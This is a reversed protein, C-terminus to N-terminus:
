AVPPLSHNEAWRHLFRVVQALAPRVRAIAESVRLAFVGDLRSPAKRGASVAKIYANFWRAQKAAIVAAVSSDGRLEFEASGKAANSGQCAVDFSVADGTIMRGHVPCDGLPNNTSLVRLATAPNATDYICITVDKIVDAPSLHPLELRVKVLYRGPQLRAKSEEALAPALALLIRAGNFGGPM